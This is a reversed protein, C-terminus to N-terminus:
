KGHEVTINVTRSFFRGEPLSNDYLKERSGKGDILLNDPLKMGRNRLAHSLQESAETARKRSLEDNHEAEGLEDTYGVISLKQPMSRKFSEAVLGLTRENKAGLKSEDFAFLILSFKELEQQKEREIHKQELKISNHATVTNGASDTVELIIDLSDIGSSLAEEPVSWTKQESGNFSVLEKRGIYISSRYSKLGAEASIHPQLSIEPPNAIHETKTIILPDTLSEDSTSIEVRRNEAQGESINSPSPKEPLLRAEVKMRKPDIQWINELYAEIAEARARALQIKGAENGANSTCGTLTIHTSPSKRLRDGLINLTERYLQLLGEGRREIPGRFNRQADAFSPYRIYRPAIASSGEDFFIYNLMPYAYHVKVEEVEMRVIHEEKKDRNIAVADISASLKSWKEDPVDTHVPIKEHHSSTITEEHNGLDYKLTIGGRLSQNKWYSTAQTLPLLYEINPLAFLKQSLPFELSLSFSIAALIANANPLLGFGESQQRVKGSPGIIVDGPTIAKVTKTVERDFLYYLAPGVEISLPKLFQWGFLAKVGVAKTNDTIIHDFQATRLNSKGGSTDNGQGFESWTHDAGFNEYSLVPSFTFKDTESGLPIDLRALFNLGSGKGNVFVECPSALQSPLKGDQYFNVGYSGGLGFRLPRIQRLSRSEILTDRYGVSDKPM